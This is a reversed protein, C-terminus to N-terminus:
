INTPRDTHWLRRIEDTRLLKITLVLVVWIIESHINELSVMMAVRVVVIVMVLKFANLERVGWKHGGWDGGGKLPIKLSNESNESYKRHFFVFYLCISPM